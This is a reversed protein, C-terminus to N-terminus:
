RVRLEEGEGDKGEERRGECKRMVSMVTEYDKYILRIVSRRSLVVVVPCCDAAAPLWWKFKMSFYTYYCRTTWSVARGKM